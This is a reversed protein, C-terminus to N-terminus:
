CCLFAAPNSRRKVTLSTDFPLSTTFSICAESVAPFPLMCSRSICRSQRCDTRCHASLKKLWLRFSFMRIRLAPLQWKRHKMCVPLQEACAAINHSDCMESAATIVRTSYVDTAQVPCCVQVLRCTHHCTWFPLCFIAKFRLKACVM